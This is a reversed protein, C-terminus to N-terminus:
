IALIPSVIPSILPNLVPVDIYCCNRIFISTKVESFTKFSVGILTFKQSQNISRNISKNLQINM